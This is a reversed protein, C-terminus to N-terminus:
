PATPWARVGEGAGIDWDAVRWAVAVTSVHRIRQIGGEHLCPDIGFGRADPDRQDLPEVAVAVKSVDEIRDPSIVVTGLYLRIHQERDDNGTAVGANGIDTILGRTGAESDDTSRLYTAVPMVVQVGVRGCHELFVAIATDALGHLAM